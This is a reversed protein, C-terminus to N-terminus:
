SDGFNDEKFENKDEEKEKRYKKYLWLGILFAIAGQAFLGLINGIEEATM